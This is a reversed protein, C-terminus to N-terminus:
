EPSVGYPVPDLRVAWAVSPPLKTGTWWGWDKGQECQAQLYEIGLHSLEVGGTLLFNAWFFLLYKVAPKALQVLEVLPQASGFVALLSSRM